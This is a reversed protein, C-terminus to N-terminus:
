SKELYEAAKRLIDPKDKAFGLVLNCDRCLIGRVKGSKHCHDIHPKSMETGCISCLNSQTDLMSGYEDMSIGYFKALKRVKRKESLIVANEQEYRKNYTRMCIKCCWSLGDKNRKNKHFEQTSKEKKCEPCIKVSYINM